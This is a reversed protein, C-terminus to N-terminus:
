KIDGIEEMKKEKEYLEGKSIEQKEQEHEKKNKASESM